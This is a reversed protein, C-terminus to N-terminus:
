VEKVLWETLEAVDAALFDAGALTLEERGGYGFLVGACPLDNKKAGDVDHRRDGVMVPREAPCRRLTEAIVEAKDTRRGDLESGCVADFYKALDFHELIQRVFVEPKSSAICLRLGANKLRELMEPVGPYVQNEFMGKPKFYERYIEVAREGDADSLGYFRMFSEKLPPGIFPLLTTHDEVHIGFRELAYAVSNTIGEAPDTLTGDLDFLVADFRQM